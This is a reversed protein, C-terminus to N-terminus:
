EVILVNKGQLCTPPCNPGNPQVTRYVPEFTTRATTVGDREVEVTLMVKTVPYLIRINDPVNYGMSYLANCDEEIVCHGSACKVPDDSVVFFCSKTVKGEPTFHVDYRGEPFRMDAPRLILTYGDYCGIETCQQAPVPTPWSLQTFQCGALFVITIGVILLVVKEVKM